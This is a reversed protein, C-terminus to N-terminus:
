GLTDRIRDFLGKGNTEARHESLTKALEKFLREQEDTLKQPIIVQTRVIQDGRRGGNVDPVGKERFTFVRGPQTGAPIKLKEAGEVTPVEVEDGLAAQAVTIPLEYLINRGERRFFPHSEVSLLIYLNGPPGGRQGSEGEATLRIQSEDDVGAPIKVRLTRERRERGEGRCQQCPDTIVTGQGSCRPCPTVNVFQGFISQQVRRVEGAGNCSQCRTPQTGPRAGTGRCESCPEIRSIVVDKECGFVAELFDIKLRTQLDRGKAPGRRRTTTAGGFFTEFIDGFGGFDFGEFGREASGNIGAHGFRDYTARRQPDSLIEYAENIEKFRDEAQSDKNRDPHYQFALRRYARKIEEESAERGVGLTEYYDAKTTM